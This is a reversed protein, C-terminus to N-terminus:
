DICGTAFLAELYDDGSPFNLARAYKHRRLPARSPSPETSSYILPLPSRGYIRTKVTDISGGSVWSRNCSISISEKNSFSEQFGLAPLILSRDLARNIAEDAVRETWHLIL